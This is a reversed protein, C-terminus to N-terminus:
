LDHVRAIDDCEVRVGWGGDGGRAIGGTEQVDGVDGDELGDVAGLGEAARGGEGEVGLVEKMKAGAVIVHLQGRAGHQATEEAVHVDPGAGDGQILAENGDELFVGGEVCQGGLSELAEESVEL